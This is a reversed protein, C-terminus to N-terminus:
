DVGAITATALALPTGTVANAAATLAVGGPQLIANCVCVVDSMLAARFAGQEKRDKSGGGNALPLGLGNWILSPGIEDSYEIPAGGRPGGALPGLSLLPGTFAAQAM